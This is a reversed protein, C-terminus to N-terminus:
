SEGDGTMGNRYLDPLATVEDLLQRRELQLPTAAECVAAHSSSEELPLEVAVWVSVVGPSEGAPQAASLSVSWASANLQASISGIGDNRRYAVDLTQCQRLRGSARLRYGHLSVDRDTLSLSDRLLREVGLDLRLASSGPVLSLNASMGRRRSAHAGYASDELEELATTMGERGTLSHDIDYAAVGLELVSDAMTARRWLEVSRARERLAGAFDGDAGDEVSQGIAVRLQTKRGFAFAESMVIEKRQRSFTFGVGRAHRRSLSLGYNGEISITGPEAFGVSANWKGADTDRELAWESEDMVLGGDDLTIDPEAILPLSRVLARTADEADPISACWAPVSVGALCLCLVLHHLAAGGLCSFTPFLRQSGLSRFGSLLSTPLNLAAFALIHRSM